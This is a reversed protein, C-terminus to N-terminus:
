AGSQVEGQGVMALKKTRWWRYSTLLAYIVTEDHVKALTYCLHWTM